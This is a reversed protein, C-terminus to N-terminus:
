IKYINKLEELVSEFDDITCITNEDFNKAYDESLFQVTDFVEFEVYKHIYSFDKNINKLSLYLHKFTLDKDEDQNIIKIVKEKIEDKSLLKDGVKM